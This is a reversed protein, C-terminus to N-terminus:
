QGVVQKKKKKKRKKGKIIINIVGSIHGTYTSIDASHIRNLRIIFTDFLKFKIWM